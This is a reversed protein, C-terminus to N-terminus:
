CHEPTGGRGTETTASRHMGGRTRATADGENGECDCSAVVVATPTYFPLRQALVSWQIQKFPVKKNTVWAIHEWGWTIYCGAEGNMESAVALAYTIPICLASTFVASHRLTHSLATSRSLSHILTHYVSICYSRDLSAYIHNEQLWYLVACKLQLVIADCQDHLAYHRCMCAICFRIKGLTVHEQTLMKSGPVVNNHVLWIKLVLKYKKHLKPKYDTNTAQVDTDNM